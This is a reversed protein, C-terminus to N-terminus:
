TCTDTASLCRRETPFMAVAISLHLGGIENEAQGTGTSGRPVGAGGGGRGGAVRM